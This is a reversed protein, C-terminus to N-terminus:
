SGFVFRYVGSFLWRAGLTLVVVGLVLGTMGAPVPIVISIM